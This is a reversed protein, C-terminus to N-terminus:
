YKIETDVVFFKYDIFDFVTERKITEYKMGQTDSDFVFLEKIVQQSPFRVGNKEIGYDVVWVVKKGFEMAFSRHTHGSAALHGIIKEDKYNQISLPDCELRVIQNKPNVWIRGLNYNEEREETPMAEIVFCSEGHVDEKGVIEYKFFNQWYRSLFGVPGFILYQSSYKLKESLHVGEKNKKKGNEELLIRKEELADDKRILQYDYFYINRKSRLVKFYQKEMLMRSGFDRRKGLINEKDAIRETCIYHLAINKVKECYNQTGELISKLQHSDWAQGYLPNLFFLVCCFFYLIWLAPSYIYIQHFKM